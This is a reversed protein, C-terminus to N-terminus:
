SKFAGVHFVFLVTSKANINIATDTKIAKIEMNTATDTKTEMNIHVKNSNRITIIHVKNNSNPYYYGGTNQTYGPYTAPNYGAILGPGGISGGVCFGCTLPCYRAMCSYYYSLPSYCYPVYQYCAPLYDVCLYSNGFGYGYNQVGRGLLGGLNALGLGISQGLGLLFGEIPALFLDFGGIGFSSFGPYGAFGVFGGGYCGCCYGNYGSYYNNSYYKFQTSGFFQTYKKPFAFKTKADKCLACTYQCAEHMLKKTSVAKCASWFCIANLNMTKACQLEVRNRIINLLELKM